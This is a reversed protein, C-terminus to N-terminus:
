FEKMIRSQIVPRPGPGILTNAEHVDITVTLGRKHALDIARNLETTAKQVSAAIDELLIDNM